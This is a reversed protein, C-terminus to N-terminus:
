GFDAVHDIAWQAFTRAARGTAQEVGPWPRMLASWDDDSFGTEGSAEGGGYNVFGLLLDAYKAAFGGEAVMLERARERTVEEYRVEEGLAAAIARVQERVTVPEPGTLTYVAGVHRDEVLAAVAVAQEVPNTHLGVTVSAASLVVIRRIGSQKALAVVERATEDVPFLYMREIDRLAPGLTEPRALDGGVV